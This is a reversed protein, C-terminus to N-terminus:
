HCSRVTRNSHNPNRSGSGRPPKAMNGLYGLIHNGYSPIQSGESAAHCCFTFATVRLTTERNCYTDATGEDQQGGVRLYFWFRAATVQLADATVQLTSAM